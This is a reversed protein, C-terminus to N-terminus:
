NYGWFRGNGTDPRSQPASIDGGPVIEQRARPPELRGPGTIGLTSPDAACAGLCLLLPIILIRMGAIHRSARRMDM